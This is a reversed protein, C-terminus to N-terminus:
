SGMREILIEIVIRQIFIGLLLLIFAIGAISVVQWVPFVDHMNLIWARANTLVPSVPNLKLIKAAGSYEPRPYIVPTLYMAFQLLTPLGFQIDKYLISVPLLLLGFSMGLMILIVVSPFFLFAGATLHVPFIIIGVVIVILSFLTNLVIEYFANVLLAERPFNIKVLINRNAQMVQMPMLMANSFVSWLITGTLVFLPYPVGVNGFNVVSTKNLVIWLISTAIPPLFSWFIGLVSQRYKAKFNREAFRWGLSHAAPFEKRINKFVTRISSNKKDSSYIHLPLESASSFINESNTM